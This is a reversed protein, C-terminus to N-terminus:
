SYKYIEYNRFTFEFIEARSTFLLDCYIRFVSAIMFCFAINEPRSFFDPLFTKFFKIKCVQEHFM